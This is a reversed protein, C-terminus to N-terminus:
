FFLLHMAFPMVTMPSLLQAFQRVNMFSQILVDSKRVGHPHTKKNRSLFAGVKRVEFFLGFVCFSANVVFM